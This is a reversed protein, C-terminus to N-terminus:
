RRLRRRAEVVVAVLAALLVGILLQGLGQDPSLLASLFVDAAADVLEAPAPSSIGGSGAYAVAYTAAALLATGAWVTGLVVAWRVAAEMTRWGMGVLAGALLFSLSWESYRLLWPTPGTIVDDGVLLDLVWGQGLCVLTGAGLAATISRQRLWWGVLPGSLLALVGALGLARWLLQAEGSDGLLRHTTVLTQTLAACCCWRWRWPWRVV